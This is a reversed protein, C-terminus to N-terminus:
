QQAEQKKKEAARILTIFETESLIELPHGELILKEAKRHKASKEYGALHDLDQDGVVLVTTNENVTEKVTCGAIAALAAAERRTMSLAGTFVMVEGFLVGGPSGERTIRTLDLAQEVRKIWGELDIGTEKIAALLITASAKADELADHHRFTYGIFKTLRRLAYGKHAFKPWARRAVRATDLWTWNPIPLSYKTCAKNISTRDFSTHCCVIHDALSFNLFEWIGVFTPAGAVMSEDIGHIAINFGTFEDEPDVYSKWESILSTGDYEVYGIQCISAPDENATEVDLATFNM